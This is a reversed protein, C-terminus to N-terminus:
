STNWSQWAPLATNWVPTYFAAIVVLDPNWGAVTCNRKPLQSCCGFSWCLSADRQRRSWTDWSYRCCSPIKSASLSNSQNPSLQARRCYHEASLLQERTLLATVTTIQIHNILNIFLKHFTRRAYIDAYDLTCAILQKFGFGSV